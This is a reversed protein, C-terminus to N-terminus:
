STPAPVFTYTFPTTHPSSFFELKQGIYIAVVVASSGVQVTMSGTSPYTFTQGGQEVSSLLPTSSSSSTIQLWCQGTTSIKVDFDKADVNYAAGQLGYLSMTVPSAPPTPSSGGGSTGKSPPAVVRLVHAKVLWQPRWRQIAFGAVVALVLFVVVFTIAKLSTPARMRRRAKALARKSHKIEARPLVPFAGTPPGAAMGYAFAGSGGAASGPGVKPVEGTQTFARLHEPGTTVATVVNTVAGVGVTTRAPSAGTPIGAVSWADIMQLALADGDLGLFSAYRRLTSLALAQDPLSALDGNELAELQTIPRSLRDHVTLLDLGREERAEAALWGIGEASSSPKTRTTTAARADRRTALDGETEQSKRTGCAYRELWNKTATAAFSFGSRRLGPGSIWMARAAAGVVPFTALVVLTACPSFRHRTASAAHAGLTRSAASSLISSM